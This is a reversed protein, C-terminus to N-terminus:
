FINNAPIWAKLEGLATSSILYLNRTAMSRQQIEELLRRLPWFCVERKAAISPSNSVHGWMHQLANRIGGYSPPKKLLATIIDALESFDHHPKMLSADRGLKRYFNVDRALVSYKHHSWIQQANEPLPIRGQEKNQYKAKLIQFQRFPKDIYKEPWIDRKTRTSVPSKETYGRLEM